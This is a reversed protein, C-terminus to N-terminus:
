WLRRKDQGRIWAQNWRDALDRRDEEIQKARIDFEASLTKNNQYISDNRRIRESLEESKENILIRLEDWKDRPMNDVNMLRRILNRLKKWAEKQDNIMSEQAELTSNASDLDGHLIKTQLDDYTFRPPHEGELPKICKEPFEDNEEQWRGLIEDLSEVNGGSEDEIEGIERVWKVVVEDLALQELEVFEEPTLDKLRAQIEEIEGKLTRIENGLDFLSDFVENMLEDIQDVVEKIHPDEDQSDPVGRSIFEDRVRDRKTKLEDYDSSQKKFSDELQSLIERRDELTSELSKKKEPNQRSKLEELRGQKSNNEIIM